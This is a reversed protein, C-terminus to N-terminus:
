RMARKEHDVSVGDSEKKEATVEDTKKESHVTVRDSKKKQDNRM